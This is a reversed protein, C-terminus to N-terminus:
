GMAAIQNVLDSVKKTADDVTAAAATQLTSSFCASPIVSTLLGLAQTWNSGKSGGVFATTVSTNLFDALSSSSLSGAAVTQIYAGIYFPLPNFFDLLAEFSSYTTLDTPSLDFGPYSKVNVIFQSQENSSPFAKAIVYNAFSLIDLMKVTTNFSAAAQLGHLYNFWLLVNKKQYSDGASIMEVERMGGLARWPVLLSSTHQILLNNPSAILM